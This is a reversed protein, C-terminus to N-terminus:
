HSATRALLPSSETDKRLAATAYLNLRVPRNAEKFAQITNAHRAKFAEWRAKSAPTFPNCSYNKATISDLEALAKCVDSIEQEAAKTTSDSRQILRKPFSLAQAKSRNNEKNGLEADIFRIIKEILLARIDTSAVVIDRILSKWGAECAKLDFKVPDTAKDLANYEVFEELIEKKFQSLQEFVQKRFDPVSLLTERLDVWRQKLYDLIETKEPGDKMFQDAVKKFIQQNLLLAKLFYKWKERTFKLKTSPSDFTVEPTNYPRAKKINLATPYIELDAGLPFNILDEATIPFADRPKILDYEMYRGDPRAHEGPTSSSLHKCSIPWLAQGSDILVITGPQYKAKGINLGHADNEAYLYNCVLAAALSRAYEATCEVSCAFNRAPKGKVIKGNNPQDPIASRYLTSTASFPTFHLNQSALYPKGGFYTPRSKPAAKKGVILQKLSNAIAEAAAHPQAKVHWHTRDRRGSPEPKKFFTFPPTKYHKIAKRAIGFDRVEV